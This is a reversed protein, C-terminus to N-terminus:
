LDESDAQLSRAIPSYFLHARPAYTAPNFAVKAAKQAEQMASVRPVIEAGAAEQEFERLM